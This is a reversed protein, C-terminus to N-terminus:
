DYFEVKIQGNPSPMVVKRLKLGSMVKSSQYDNESM